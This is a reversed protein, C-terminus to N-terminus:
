EVAVALSWKTQKGKGKVTEQSKDLLGEKFLKGCAGTVMNTSIELETAIETSFMGGNALLELIAERYADSKAPANKKKSNATDLKEISKEAFTVVEATIDGNIIATYFERNTM